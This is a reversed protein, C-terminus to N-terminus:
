SAEKERSAWAAVETKLVGLSRIADTIALNEDLSGGHNLDFEIKREQIAAEAAQIREDMKSWDTELLAVKYVEYWKSTTTM